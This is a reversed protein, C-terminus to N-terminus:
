EITFELLGNVYIFEVGAFEYHELSFQENSESDVAKIELYYKGPQLNIDVDLTTGVINEQEFLIKDMKYTDYIKVKYTITRGQYSYSPEWALHLTGDNNKEPASVFMPAPFNFSYLFNDYNQQIIDSFSNILEVVEVPGSKLLSLDPYYPLTKELVPLYLDTYSRINEETFYENKLELIKKNLKDISGPYKFFKKHLTVMNLKQGSRLSPAIANSSIANMNADFDWPIFYWTKSNNPSYIIFNHNLIDESGVLLNFALWTLYNDENFYTSFLEEFGMTPNNIAELLEILKTHDEAERITLVQEFEVESYEPDDINRILEDKQFSFNRAKYMSCNSDLGRVELFTKNPQEINTYLGYYEYKRDEIPLSDDKIWVRMFNTRYSVMDPMGILMDASFKTLIKTRDESHKNINLVSQGFFTKAEDELKIKYSKYLDGRSSNGRVRITANTKDTVTIPDLKEDENLIQVNCNLVPNYAHDRSTHKSFDSFDLLEGNEDKTPFITIYVDYINTDPTDPYISKDEKIPLGNLDSDEVTWNELSSAKDTIDPKEVKVSTNLYLFTFSVFALVLFILLIVEGNKIIKRM